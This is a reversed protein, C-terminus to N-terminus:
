NRRGIVQLMIIVRTLYRHFNELDIKPYLAEADDDPYNKYSNGYWKGRDFGLTSYYRPERNFNLVATKEGKQIYYKHDEDGERLNYRTSYPYTIDEDIPVGKDSYFVEVTSFPVSM